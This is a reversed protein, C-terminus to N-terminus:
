GPKDRQISVYNQSSGLSKLCASVELHLCFWSRIGMGLGLGLGLGMGLAMGLGDLMEKWTKNVSCWAWPIFHDATPCFSLHPLLNWPIWIGSNGPFVVGAREETADGCSEDRTSCCSLRRRLVGVHIKLNWRWSTRGPLFNWVSHSYSCCCGWCLEWQLCLYMQFIVKIQLNEYIVRGSIRTSLLAQPAQQSFFIFIKWTHFPYPLFSCHREWGQKHKVKSLLIFEMMKRIKLGLKRGAPRM